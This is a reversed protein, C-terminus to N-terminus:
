KMGLTPREEPPLLDRLLQDLLAVNSADGARAAAIRAKRFADQQASVDQAAGHLEGLVTLVRTQLHPADARQALDQARQLAEAAARADGGLALSAALSVAAKALTLADARASSMCQLAASFSAVAGAANSESVRLDGIALHAAAQMAEDDRQIAIEV